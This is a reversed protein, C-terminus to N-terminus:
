PVCCSFLDEMAAIGEPSRLWDMEKLHALHALEDREREQNQLQERSARVDRFALDATKRDSVRKPAAPVVDLGELSIREGPTLRRFVWGAL